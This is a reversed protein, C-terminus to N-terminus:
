TKLDYDPVEPVGPTAVPASMAQRLGRPTGASAEEDAADPMRVERDPLEDELNNLDVNPASRVPPEFVSFSSASSLGGVEDPPGEPVASRKSDLKNKLIIEDVDSLLGQSKLSSSNELIQVDKWGKAHLRQINQTDVRNGKRSSSDFAFSQDMDSAFYRNPLKVPATKVGKSALYHRYSEGRWGCTNRMSYIPVQKNILGDM